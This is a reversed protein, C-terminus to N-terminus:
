DDEFWQGDRKTYTKGNITKQQSGSKSPPTPAPAPAVAPPAAGRKTATVGIDGLDIGYAQSIARPDYGSAIMANAKRKLGNQVVEKQRELNAQIQKPDMAPTINASEFVKIEGPTLAGGYLEHRVVNKYDNYGQWWTAGEAVDKGVVGEPL